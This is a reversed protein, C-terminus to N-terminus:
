QAAVGVQAGALGANFAEARDEVAVGEAEGVGLELSEEARDGEGGAERLRQGFDEDVFEFDVEVPGVQLEDDLGVGEAIV